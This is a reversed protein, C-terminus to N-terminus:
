DKCRRAKIVTREELDIHLRGMETIIYGMSTIEKQTELLDKDSDNLLVFMSYGYDDKYEKWNNM